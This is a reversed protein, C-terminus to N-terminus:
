RQRCQVHHLDRRAAGLRGPRDHHPPGSRGGPGPVQQDHHFGFTRDDIGCIQSWRPWAPFALLAHHLVVIGQQNEGLTSLAEATRADPAPRHFNYFVLVDYEDRVGGQDAVFNELTQPYADVDTMGRFAAQFGPVDFNHEGTIVAATITNDDNPLSGM